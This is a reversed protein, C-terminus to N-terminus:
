TKDLVEKLKESLKAMNFPKQLFGQAGADLIEQAPGHISYGSCVIVRLNPRAKKIIPYIKCGETDPLKIDLLALDIDEDLTKVIDIADKGTKAELVRYGMKELMARTVDLVLAEDEIVLITGEGKVTEIKPKEAEKVQADVAPLYIRVVTGTGLESYVSIWGDHSKVTGYASAMGLGRGQFKTTFFPEFIRSRTAQDMGIGDDEITLCVYPGPKLSPHHKVFEKDIEEKATTILIRGKGEIAESANTLIVFLLMQLQTLDGNLHVSDKSFVTELVIDPNITHKIIHLTQEVFDNLSINKPQYKGGRAYALLQSTLSAMRKASAKMPEVHKGINENGPIKMQLLDINGTIVSLANNFEHAIGGALTGIAKMKQDQQIRFELDAKEKEAVKTLTIDTIAIRLQNFNGEADQVVICELQAYFETGNKKMIKLQCTQKEKTEFSQRVTSYYRHRYDEAIYHFLGNKMLRSREIGLLNAGTLNAEIVLLNQDVTVYGVPAFDYLDVYRNRSEELEIQSRRLEENQMELEIQHVQLEHIINQIDEAPIDKFGKPSESLLQEARVRLEKLNKPSDNEM